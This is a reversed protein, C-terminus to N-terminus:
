LKFRSIIERATIMQDAPIPVRVTYDSRGSKTPASYTFEMIPMQEENIIINELKAGLINWSHLQNNILIGNLSIIAEGKNKKNKNHQLRISIFAVLGTMLILGLMIFTVVFGDDPDLIPFLIGFFVAFGAIIYFITKKMQKDEEFDLQTFKQWEEDTYKWHVIVNQGSVINNYQKALSRYVFAVILAILFLFGFLFSLAFGGNM